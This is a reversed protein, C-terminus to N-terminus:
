AAQQGTSALDESEFGIHRFNRPHNSPPCIRNEYRVRPAWGIDYRRVIEGRYCGCVKENRLLSGFEVVYGDAKRRSGCFKTRGLVCFLREKVLEAHWVQSRQVKGFMNIRIFM